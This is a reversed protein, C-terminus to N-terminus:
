KSGEHLKSLQYKKALESNDELELNHKLCCPAFFRVDLILPVDNIRAWEDAYGKRGKRHEVTKAARKCGEIFCKKNEPLSLYEKRLFSYEQTNRKGKASQKKVPKKEKKPKPEPKEDLFSKQYIKAFYVM